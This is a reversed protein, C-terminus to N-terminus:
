YVISRDEIQISNQELKLQKISHNSIVFVNDIKNLDGPRYYTDKDLHCSPWLESKIVPSGFGKKDTLETEKFLAVCVRNSHIGWHSTIFYGCSTHNWSLVHVDYSFEMSHVVEGNKNLVELRRVDGKFTNSLLLFVHGGRFACDVINDPDVDFTKVDRITKSLQDIIKVYMKRRRRSSLILHPFNFSIINSCNIENLPYRFCNNEDQIDMLELEESAIHSTSHFHRLLINPADIFLRPNAGLRRLVLRERTITDYVEIRKALNKNKILLIILNRSITCKLINGDVQLSWEDTEKTSLIKLFTNGEEGLNETVVITDGSVAIYEPKFELSRSSSTIKTEGEDWYRRFKQEMLLRKTKRGWINSVIIQNWKKCTQRCKHLSAFDLMAFIEVLPLDPVPVWDASFAM